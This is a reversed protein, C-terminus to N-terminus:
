FCLYRKKEKKWTEYTAQQTKSFNDLASLEWWVAETHGAGSRALEARYLGDGPLITAWPFSHASIVIIGPPLSLYGQLFQPLM